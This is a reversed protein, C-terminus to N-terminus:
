TTLDHTLSLPSERGTLDPSSVLRVCRCLYATGTIAASESSCRYFYIINVINVCVEYVCFENEYIFM